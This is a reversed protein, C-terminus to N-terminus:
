EMVWKIKLDKPKYNKFIQITKDSCGVKWMLLTNFFFVVSFFGNLHEQHGHDDHDDDPCAQVCERRRERDEM